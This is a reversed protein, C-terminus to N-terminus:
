AYSELFKTLPKGNDLLKDKLKLLNEIDKKETTITAGEIKGDLNYDVIIAHKNDFLMFDKLNNKSLFLEEPVLYIKEYGFEQQIKYAELEFKIYETLPTQFTHVRVFNIKRKNAENWISEEAQVDEILMNKLKIFDGSQFALLFDEEGEENYFQQTECKFFEYKTKDWFLDFHDDYEKEKIFKKM